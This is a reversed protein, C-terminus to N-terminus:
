TALNLYGLEEVGFDTAAETANVFLGPGDSGGLQELPLFFVVESPVNAQRDHARKARRDHAKGHQGSEDRCVRQPQRTATTQNQRTKDPQPQRTATTEIM